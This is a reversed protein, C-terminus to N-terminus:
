KRCVLWACRDKGIQATGGQTWGSVRLLGRSQLSIPPSVAVHCSVRRRHNGGRGEEKGGSGDKKLGDMVVHVLHYNDARGWHMVHLGRGERPGRPRVWNGAGGGLGM